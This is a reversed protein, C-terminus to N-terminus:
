RITEAVDYDIAVGGVAGRQEFIRSGRAYRVTLRDTSQWRVEAWPGGWEGTAAAGYDDDAIFANGGGTLPAGRELVSIQTSFGTTAGCDRQFLVARHRGDPSLVSAIEDNACGDSCGSLGVLAACLLLAPVPWGTGAGHRM